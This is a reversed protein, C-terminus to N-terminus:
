PQDIFGSGLISKVRNNLNQVWTETRGVRSLCQPYEHTAKLKSIKGKLYTLTVRLADQRDELFAEIAKSKRYSRALEVESVFNATEDLYIGLYVVDDLGNERRRRWLITPAGILLIAIGYALLVFPFSPPNQIVAVITVVSAAIGM